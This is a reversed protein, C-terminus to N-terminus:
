GPAISLTALAAAAPYSPMTGPQTVSISAVAVAYTAAATLDDGLRLRTALGGIFADGAGTTDIVQVDPSTCRYSQEM